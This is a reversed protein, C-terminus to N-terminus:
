CKPDCQISNMIITTFSLIASIEESIKKEWKEEARWVEREPISEERLEDREGGWWCVCVGEGTGREKERDTV